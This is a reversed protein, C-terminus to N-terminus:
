LDADRERLRRRKRRFYRRIAWKYLVYAVRQRYRERLSHVRGAGDVAYFRRPRIQGHAYGGDAGLVVTKSSEAPLDCPVQGVLDGFVWGGALRVQSVTEIRADRRGRNRLVIELVERRQSPKVGMTELTDEGKVIMPGKNTKVLYAEDAEVTIRARDRVVGSFLAWLGAATSVVSAYIGLYIAVDTTSVTDMLM